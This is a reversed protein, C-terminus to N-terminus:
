TTRLVTPRDRLRGILSAITALNALNSPKLEAHPIEVGFRTAVFDRLMVITISDIVGWEILPTAADLGDDKGNLVERAIFGKLEPIFTEDPM